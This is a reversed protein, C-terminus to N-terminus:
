RCGWSQSAQLKFDGTWGGGIRHKAQAASIRPPLNKDRRLEIIACQAIVSPVEAVLCGGDTNHLYALRSQDGRQGIAGSSNGRFSGFTRSGIEGHSDLACFLDPRDIKCVLDDGNEGFRAAVTAATMALGAALIPEPERQESKFGGLIILVQDFLGAASPKEGGRGSVAKQEELASCRQWMAAPLTEVGV